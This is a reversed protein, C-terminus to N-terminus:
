NKYELWLACLEVDNRESMKMLMTIGDYNCDLSLDMTCTQLLIKTIERNHCYGYIEYLKPYYASSIYNEPKAGCNILFKVIELLNDKESYTCINM